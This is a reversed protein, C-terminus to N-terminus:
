EQPPAEEDTPMEEPPAEAGEEPMPEVSEASDQMDGEQGPTATFINCLGMEDIPGSVFECTNPGHGGFYVCNACMFPGMEPGKYGATVPDLGGGAEHGASPDEEAPAEEAPYPEGEPMPEPTAEGEPLQELPEEAPAAPPKGGGIRLAM